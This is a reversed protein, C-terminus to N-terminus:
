ADELSYEPLAPAAPAKSDYLAAATLLQGVMDETTGRVADAILELERAFDGTGHRFVRGQNDRVILHRADVLQQRPRGTFPLVLERVQHDDRHVTRISFNNQEPHLLLRRVLPAPPPVSPVVSDTRMTFARYTVDEDKAPSYRLYQLLIAGDSRRWTARVKSPAPSGDPRTRVPYADAEVRLTPGADQHGLDFRLPERHMLYPDLVTLTDAETFVASAHRGGVRFVAEGGAREAVLRGAEFSQWVCAMGLRRPVAGTGYYEHFQAASNYPVEHLIETLVGAYVHEEVTNRTTTPM